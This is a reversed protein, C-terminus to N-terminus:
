RIVVEELEAAVPSMVRLVADQGWAAAVCNAVMAASLTGGM